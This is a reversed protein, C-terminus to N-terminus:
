TMQGGPFLKERQPCYMAPQLARQLDSTRQARALSLETPAPQLGATLGPVRM